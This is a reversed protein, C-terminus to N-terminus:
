KHPGQLFAQWLAYLAWAWFAVLGYKGLETRMTKWFEAKDKAAQIVAEHHRRHGDADGEPFARVLVAQLDAKQEAAGDALETRLQSVNANTEKVMEMLAVFGSGPVARQDEFKPATNPM